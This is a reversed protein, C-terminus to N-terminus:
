PYLHINLGRKINSLSYFDSIKVYKTSPPIQLKVEKMKSDQIFKGVIHLYSDYFVVYPHWVDHPNSKIEISSPNDTLNIWYDELPKKLSISQSSKATKSIIEAESSDIDYRWKELSFRQINNIFMGRKELEKGFIEPDILSESKLSIVWELNDGVRKARKTTFFGYGTDRLSDRVNKLFLLPNSDTKFTIELEQPSKLYINLLGSSKLKQTVKVIDIRGNKYYANENKFIIKILKKQVQYTKTGIINRIQETLESANLFSLILLASLLIKVM